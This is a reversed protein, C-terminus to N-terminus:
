DWGRCGCYFSDFEFVKPVFNMCKGDNPRQTLPNIEYFQLHTLDRYGCNACSNQIGGRYEFFALSGDLTSPMTKGCYCKAFRGELNPETFAAVNSGPNIGACIACAPIKSGDELIQRSNAAHGCEMLQKM